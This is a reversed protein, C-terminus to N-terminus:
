DIKQFLIWKEQTELMTKATACHKPIVPTYLEILTRLVAWLDTLTQLVDLPDAEKDRPKHEDLYKNARLALDHINWVADYLEYTNYLHTVHKKTAYIKKTAKDSVLGSQISLEKKNALTIVRSLLNGFANALHSNRLNILDDEKYAADGFTPIGAILYFRVAEAGYKELQDMPSIVNGLTKSMKNGDPGLIMGHMLFTKTLPFWASALMGQRIACQFRLNDPGFIQVGPWFKEVKDMDDPFGAAWIYNSLADFWVYMVQTDDDPVPVWRPLSEKTRSISIDEMQELFNLLENLKNSPLLAETSTYYNTLQEKYKSLRFFYNEQEFVVPETLHDPCVQIRKSWFWQTMTLWETDSLIEMHPMNKAIEIKEWGTWNPTDISILDKSTKFSECGVCYLGSYSKKYIDGAESCRNRMGQAVATHTPASTRYFNTYNIAFAEFFDIFTQANKNVFEQIPLGLEEAKQFMKLGHEDTGVNFLVEDGQSKRRRCIVDAQVFELAHGIHPKANVYPLTTTFYFNNM